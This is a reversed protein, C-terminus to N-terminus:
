PGHSCPLRRRWAAYNVGVSLTDTGLTFGLFRRPLPGRKPRHCACRDSWQFYHGLSGASPVRMATHLGDGHNVPGLVEDIADRLKVVLHDQVSWAAFNAYDRLTRQAVTHSSTSARFVEILAVASTALGGVLLLQLWMVASTNGTLRRM